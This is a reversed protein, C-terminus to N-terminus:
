PSPNPTASLAAGSIVIAMAHIVTNGMTKLGETVSMVLYLTNVAAASQVNPLSLLTDLATNM